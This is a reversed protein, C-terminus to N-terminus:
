PAAEKTKAELDRLRSSLTWQISKLSQMADAKKLRGALRQIAALAAGELAERWEWSREPYASGPVDLGAAKLFQLRDKKSTSRWTSKLTWLNASEKEAAEGARISEHSIPPTNIPYSGKPDAPSADRKEAQKLEKIMKGAANLTVKGKKVAETLEPPADRIVTKATAISRPSVNLMEAAQEVSPRCIQLHQNEGISRTALEAAIM